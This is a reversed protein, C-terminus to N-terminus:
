QAAIAKSISKDLYVLWKAYAKHITQKKKRYNLGRSNKYELTYGDANYPIYVEVIYRGGRNLLGEVMGEGTKACLWGRDECGALIGKEIKQLDKYKISTKVDAVKTTRCASLALVLAFVLFVTKKM